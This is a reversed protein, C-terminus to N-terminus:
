CASLPQWPIFSSGSMTSFLPCAYSAAAVSACLVSLGFELLTFTDLLNTSFSRSLRSGLGMAFLMLSMLLTWQLTANGLFYSALTCLVFEACHGRLRDCVPM